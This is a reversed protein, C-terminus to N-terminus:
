IRKGFSQYDAVSIGTESFLRDVAEIDKHKVQGNLSYSSRLMSISGVEAECGWVDSSNSLGDNGFRYDDNKTFYRIQSNDHGVVWFLKGGRGEIDEKKFSGPQSDDIIIKNEFSMNDDIPVESTVASIILDCDNILSKNSDAVTVKAGLKELSNKNKINIKNRIDYIILQVGPNERAIYEATSIGISGGGILGIPKSLLNNKEYDILVKEFMKAILWVTGAHGTTIILNSKISRGFNTLKPLTGGLGIYKAGYVEDVFSATQNIRSRVAKILSLNSRFNIRMDEFIPVFVVVGSPNKKDGYTAITTPPLSSVVSFALEKSMTKLSPMLDFVEDWHRDNILSVRTPIVFAFDAEYKINKRTYEKFARSVFKDTIYLNEIDTDDEVPMTSKIQEWVQPNYAYKHRKKM